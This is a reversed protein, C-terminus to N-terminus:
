TNPREPSNYEYKQIESSNTTFVEGKPFYATSPKQASKSMLFSHDNAGLSEDIFLYLIFIIFITSRFTDDIQQMVNPSKSPSMSPSNKKESM